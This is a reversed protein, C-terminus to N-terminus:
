TSGPWIVNRRTDLQGPQADGGSAAHVHLDRQPYPMTIGAADFRLKLDATLGRQVALYDQTQCWPACLIDVSHDGLTVVAITPEPEDLTLPYEAVAAWLVQIAHNIDDDYSISFVLDVRRTARATLNVVVGGWVQHNPMVVVRNDARVITTAVISASQVTGATSGIDVYDGEDFPRNILIMLGKAFNGLTDQLALGIIV